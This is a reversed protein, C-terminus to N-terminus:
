FFSPSLGLWGFSLTEVGFSLTEVFQNTRPEYPTPAKGDYLPAKDDYFPSTHTMSSNPRDIVAHAAEMIAWRHDGMMERVKRTTKRFTLEM